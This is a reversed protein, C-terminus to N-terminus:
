RHIQINYRVRYATVSANAKSYMIQLRVRNSDWDGSSILGQNILANNDQETLYGSVLLTQNAFLGVMPPPISVFINIQNVSAVTSTLDVTGTIFLSNGNSTFRAAYSTGITSGSVSTVIPTYQTTSLTCPYSGIALTKARVNMWKQEEFESTFKNLSM